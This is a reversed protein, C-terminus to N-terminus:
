VQFGRLINPDRIVSAFLPGLIWRRVPQRRDARAHFTISFFARLFPDCRDSSLLLHCKSQFM